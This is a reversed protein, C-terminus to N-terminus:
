NVTHRINIMTLVAVIYDDMWDSRVPQRRGRRTIDASNQLPDSHLSISVPREPRHAAGSPRDSLFIDPLRDKVNAFLKESRVAIGTRGNAVDGRLSAHILGHDSIM